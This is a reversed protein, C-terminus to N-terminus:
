HKFISIYMEDEQQEVQILNDRWNSPQPDKPKINNSHM